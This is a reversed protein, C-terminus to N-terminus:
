FFSVPKKLFCRVVHADCHEIHRENCLEWPVNSQIEENKERRKLIIIFWYVSRITISRAQRNVISGVATHCKEDVSQWEDRLMM